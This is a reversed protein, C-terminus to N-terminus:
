EVARCVASRFRAARDDPGDPATYRGESTQPVAGKAAIAVIDSGRGHGPAVRINDELKPRPPVLGRPLFASRRDIGDASLPCGLVLVYHMAESAELARGLDSSGAAM